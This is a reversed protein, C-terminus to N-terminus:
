LKFYAATQFFFLVLSKFATPVNEQLHRNLPFIVKEPEVLTMKYESRTAAVSAILHQITIRGIVNQFIRRRHLVVLWHLM